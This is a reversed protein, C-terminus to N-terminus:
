HPFSERERREKKKNKLTYLPLNIPPLEGTPERVECSTLPTEMSLSASPLFFFVKHVDPSLFHLSLFLPSLSVTLYYPFRSQLIFAVNAESPPLLLSKLLEFAAQNVTFELWGAVSVSLIFLLLVSHQM